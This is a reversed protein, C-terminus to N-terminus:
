GQRTASGVINLACRDGANAREAPRNQAHLGRLRVDFDKPSITLRDGVSIQGSFLTGTVVLGAGRLTFVRDIALRPFGSAQRRKASHLALLDRLADIGEGTVSSVALIPADALRTPALLTQIEAIRRARLEEDALDAKTLAVIGAEIGLLDVIQLHEITQPMVGDNAAVVM